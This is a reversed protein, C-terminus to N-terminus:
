PAAATQLRRALRGAKRAALFTLLWTVALGAGVALAAAGASQYDILSTPDDPDVAVPRALLAAGTVIAALGLGGAVGGLAVLRRCDTSGHCLPGPARRPGEPRLADSPAPSPAPRLTDSPDPSPDPRAPDAAGPLHYPAPEWPGPPPSMDKSIHGDPPTLALAAALAAAIPSAAM